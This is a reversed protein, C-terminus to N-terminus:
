RLKRTKLRIIGIVDRMEPVKWLYAGGFFVTSGIITSVIVDQPMATHLFRLVVWLVVTLVALKLYTVHWFIQWLRPIHRRLYLFYFAAISIPVLSSALALGAHGMLPVLLFFLAVAVTQSAITVTVAAKTRQLALTAHGLISSIGNTTLGLALFLLAISTQATDDASFLGHEYVFSILPNRLITVGIVLPISVLCVLRIAEGLTARMGAFDRRSAKESLLPYIVTTISTLFIITLLQTIKEAYKLATLSGPTLHSVLVRYVIGAVQTALVSFIFPYVLRALRAITPDFPQWVWRYSFGQRSLGWTVFAFQVVSGVLAGLALSYIGMSSALALVLIIATFPSLVRLWAPLAFQKLSYLMATAMDVLWLALFSPLIVRLLQVTLATTASDFGPAIFEVFPKALFGIAILIILFAAATIHLVNLALQWADSKKGQTLRQVFVPLFVATISGGLLLKSLLESTSQAMFYADTTSSAGFTYAVLQQLVFSVAAGGLAIIGILGASSATQQLETKPM